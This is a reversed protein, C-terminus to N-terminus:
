PQRACRFGQYAFRDSPAGGGRRAARLDTTVGWCSGGRSARIATSGLNACDNCTNGADLYWAQDYGDLVWEWMGGALDEHGWRGRGSPFSGVLPPTTCGLGGFNAHSSVDGDVGWPYLRNDTGGAAALEWEAETPLRGGDWICFAFAEYWTICNIAANENDAPVDTWTAQSHCALGSILDAQSPLEAAWSAQWGSGGILPHAGADPAPPTGDYQDVFARFRGVTVEFRDLVFSSITAYHEPQEDNKGSSFADCSSLSRGMLYTESPVAISECCSVGACSLGGACSAGEPGLEVPGVIGWGCECSGSEDCYRNNGCPTLVADKATCSHSAEDCSDNCDPGTDHGPCPGDSAQCAGHGDCSLTGTCFLGDECEAAPDTGAQIDGCTGDDGQTEAGRCSRCTGECAGDCCVGDVCHGSDCSADDDCPQGNQCSPCDPEDDVVYLDAGGSILTCGGVIALATLAIARM